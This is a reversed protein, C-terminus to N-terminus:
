FRRGRRPKKPFNEPRAAVMWDRAEACAAVVQERQHDFSPGQVVSDLYRWFTPYSPWRQHHHTRWGGPPKAELLAPAQEWNPWVGVNVAFWMVLANRRLSVAMPIERDSFELGFVIREGESTEYEKYIYKLSSPLNGSVPSAGLAAGIQEVCVRFYDHYRRIVAESRSWLEGLEDDTLAKTPILDEERLMEVFESVLSSQTEDLERSGDLGALRETLDQWRRPVAAVGLRSAHQVDEEPWPAPRKTLTMLIPSPKGALWDAYKRLQDDGYVADLKSEVVLSLSETWLWADMRGHAISQQTSVGLHSLELDTVDLGAGDAALRFLVDGVMPITAVLWVLMETLQDEDGSRRGLRFINRDDNM